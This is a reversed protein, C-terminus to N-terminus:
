FDFDDESWIASLNKVLNESYLEIARAAIDPQKALKDGFAKGLKKAWKKALKEEWVDNIERPASFDALVEKWSNSLAFDQWHEGFKIKLEELKSRMNSITRESIGCSLAQKPKSGIGMIVMKWARNFKDDRSVPLKDKSNRRISEIWAEELTGEFIEVPITKEKIKKEHLATIYANLRHHGDILKWEKGSWWVLVPDLTKDANGVLASVLNSIHEGSARAQGDEFLRPQFVLENRKIRNIPLNIFQTGTNPALKALQSEALLANWADIFKEEKDMSLM